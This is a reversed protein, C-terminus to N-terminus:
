LNTGCLTLGAAMTDPCTFVPWTSRVVKAGRAYHASPPDAHCPPQQSLHPPSLQPGQLMAALGWECVCRAANSMFGVHSQETWISHPRNCTAAAAHAPLHATLQGQHTGLHVCTLCCCLKLSEWTVTPSHSPRVGTTTATVVCFCVAVLFMCGDCPQKCQQYM